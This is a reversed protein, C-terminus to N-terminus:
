DCTMLGSHRLCSRGDSCLLVLGSQFCIRSERAVTAVSPAPATDFQVHVGAPQFDGAGNYCRLADSLSLCPVQASAPDARSLAGIIGMVILRTM